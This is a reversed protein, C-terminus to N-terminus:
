HVHVLNWKVKSDMKGNKSKQTLWQYVPHIDDGKVDDIGKVIVAILDDTSVQKKTM